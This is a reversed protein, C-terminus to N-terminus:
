VFPLSSLTMAVPFYVLYLDPSDFSLNRQVLRILYTHSLELIYYVYLSYRYTHTHTHSLSSFKKYYGDRSYTLTVEEQYYIYIYM